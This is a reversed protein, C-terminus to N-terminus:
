KIAIKEFSNKMCTSQDNENIISWGCNKLRDDTKVIKRCLVCYERKDIQLLETAVDYNQIERKPAELVIDLGIFKHSEPDINISIIGVENEECLKVFNYFRGTDYFNRPDFLPIAIYTKQAKEKYNISQSIAESVAEIKNSPKLEVNIVEIEDGSLTRVIRYGEFDVNQYKRHKREEQKHYINELQLIKRLSDEITKGLEFESKDSGSRFSYQAVGIQFKNSRTSFKYRENKNNNTTTLSEKVLGLEINKKDFKCKELYAYLTNLFEEITENFYGEQRNEAMLKKAIEEGIESSLTIKDLILTGSQGKGKSWEFNFETSQYQRFISKFEEWDIIKDTGTLSRLLEKDEKIKEFETITIKCDPGSNDIKILAEALEQLKTIFKM